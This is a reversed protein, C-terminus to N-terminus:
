AARVQSALWAEIDSRRFRLTGGLRLHPLIPDARKTHDYVWSISVGVWQAVEQPTLLKESPVLSDTPM